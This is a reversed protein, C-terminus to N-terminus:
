DKDEVIYVQDGIAVRVWKSAMEEEDEEDLEEDAEEGNTTGVKDVLEASIV